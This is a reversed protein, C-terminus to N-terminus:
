GAGLLRCRLLEDSRRGQRLRGTCRPLAGGPLLAEWSLRGRKWGRLRSRGDARSHRRECAQASGLRLCGLFARRPIRAAVHCREGPHPGEGSDDDAWGGLCALFFALPAFCEAIELSMDRSSRYAAIGSMAPGFALSLQFLHREMSSLTLDIASVLYSAGVLITVSAFAAVPDHLQTITYGIMYYSLGILLQVVGVSMSVRAFAEYTQWYVAAQRILKIHRLNACDKGYSCGLEYVDEGRRELGWPDAAVAAAITLPQTSAEESGDLVRGDGSSTAIASDKAIDEQTKGFLFPIRFMQRPEVREFESAYTRCAELEEWSPIPLRVLQTLLRTQYSQAAVAAHM